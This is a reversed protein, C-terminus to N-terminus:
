CACCVNWQTASVSDLWIVQACILRALKDLSLNAGDRENANLDQGTPLWTYHELFDKCMGLPGFLENKATRRFFIGFNPMESIIVQM